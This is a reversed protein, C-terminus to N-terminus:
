PSTSSTIGLPKFRKGLVNFVGQDLELVGAVRLAPSATMLIRNTEYLDPMVVINVMGFEDELSMFFVGKASEPRQRCIVM